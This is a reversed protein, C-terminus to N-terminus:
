RVVVTLTARSGTGGRHEWHQQSGAAAVAGISIAGTNVDHHGCAGEYGTGNLALLEIDYQGAGLEFSECHHANKLKSDFSYGALSVRVADGDECQHDWVCVEVRGDPTSVVFDDLGDEVFGDDAPAKAGSGLVVNLDIGPVCAPLLCAAFLFSRLNM